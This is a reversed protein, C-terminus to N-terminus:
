SGMLRDLDSNLRPLSRATALDIRDDRLAELVRRYDAAHRDISTETLQHTGYVVFPPLYEMGCLRATQEIPALLQRLTYRNSGAREYAEERGGTTTATLMIKGELAKGDRGYAWGHELVLDQWEKLIAPTSYWYFPHQLVILQHEELLTQERPVDIDFDPYCEYLDNVTV